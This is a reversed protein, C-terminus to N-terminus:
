GRDDGPGAAPAAPLPSSLLDNVLVVADAVGSARIREIVDTRAREYAANREAEATALRERAGRLQEQAAALAMSRADRDARVAEYVGRQGDLVDRLADKAGQTKWQWLAQAANMAVLAAIVGVLAWVM